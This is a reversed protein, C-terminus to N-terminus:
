YAVQVSVKTVFAKSSRKKNIIKLPIPMGEKERIDIVNAAVDIANAVSESVSEGEALVGQLAESTALFGGEELTEVKLPLEYELVRVKKNVAKVM